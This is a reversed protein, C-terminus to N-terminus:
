EVLIDPRLTLVFWPDVYIKILGAKLLLKLLDIDAIEGASKIGCLSQLRKKLKDVKEKADRERRVKHSYHAAMGIMIDLPSGHFAAPENQKIYSIVALEGRKLKLGSIKKLVPGCLLCNRAHAIVELPLPSTSPIPDGTVPDSQIRKKAEALDFGAMTEVIINYARACTMPKKNM